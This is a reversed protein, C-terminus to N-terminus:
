PGKTNKALYKAVEKDMVTLAPQTMGNPAQTSGRMQGDRFGRGADLVGAYAYNAEIDLKNLRTNRRANGTDVPTNKLFEQYVTPMVAMKLKVLNGLTQKYRTADFKMKISM